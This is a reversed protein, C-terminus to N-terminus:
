PCNKLYRNYFYLYENKLFIYLTPIQYIRKLDSEFYRKIFLSQDQTDCFVFRSQIIRLVDREDFINFTKNKSSINLLTSYQFVGYKTCPFLIADNIGIDTKSLMDNSLWFPVDIDINLTSKSKDKSKDEIASRLRELYRM